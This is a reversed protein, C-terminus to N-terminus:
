FSTVSRRVVAVIEWDMGSSIRIDEFDPNEAKLTISDKHKVFRKVTLEGDVKAVVISGNKPKISTDVILTSGDCIGADRMSNGNVRLAYISSNDYDLLEDATITAEVEDSGALPIGASVALRLLPIVKAEKKVPEAPAYAMKKIEQQLKDTYYELAALGGEALVSTEGDKIISSAGNGTLMWRSSIFFQSELLAIIEHPVATRGSEWSYVTVPRIGIRDAYETVQLKLIRERAFQHRQGLDNRWQTDM